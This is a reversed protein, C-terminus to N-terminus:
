RPVVQTCVVSGDDYYDCWMILNLAPVQLNCEIRDDYEFCSITYWTHYITYGSIANGRYLIDAQAQDVTYYHTCQPVFGEDAGEDAGVVIPDSVCTTAMQLVTGTTPQDVGCSSQALVGLMVVGLIMARSVAYIKAASTM